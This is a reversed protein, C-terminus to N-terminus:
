VAMGQAASYAKMVEGPTTLARDPHDLRLYLRSKASEPLVVSPCRGDPLAPHLDYGISQLLARRKNPAIGGSRMTATLHRDLYTGSIYGGRFGVTDADVLEMLDQEVRGLGAAQAAATSSTRPARGLLWSLGFEPPIHLTHLFEAVMAYGDCYKAWHYLAEFYAPTMGDRAMDAPSMQATWLPAVRRDGLTIRIADKHNSNCIFNGVIEAVVQDLGKGEVELHTGTIMPKLREWLELQNDHIKLDEVCFLLKGFLWGNFQNGLKAASPWHTYRQGIAAATCQSLFTKGNGECGVLLPFWQFKNGAFQVCGAMYYLMARRDREDPLLKALHNLFPTVDGKVRRVNAAWYTNVRKRGEDELIAGFPKAPTFATGHAWTAKLVQSQTMAEFADKTTKTNAKDMVFVHGGYIAKFRDPALMFGGPVLVKHHDVVYTCGAFFDAQQDPTVFTQTTRAEMRPTDPPAAVPRDPAVPPPPVIGPPLPAGREEPAAPVAEPPPMLPSEAAPKDQLVDRGLGCASRITREALYDPRDDWKERKLASRRMLREIRAIHRGTWFSLHSALAADASSRDYPEGSNADPPYARSLAATDAHWLDAFSASAGGFQSAVSRSQMARRLLEDDDTPGRWEACPGEDPVDIHALERPPFYTAVVWPMVASFDAACDGQLGDGTLACFRDSTYLEARHELNKSSHPPVVGRGFLHLGKGSASIEVAAGRLVQGVLQQALPSWTGNPLLCSDLDLFWEGCGDPFARGAGFGAGWRRAAAVATEVDTWNRPDTVSCPFGQQYHVPRKALKGPKNPDPFVSYVLWWPKARMGALAPHTLIADFNM